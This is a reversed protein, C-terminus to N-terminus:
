RTLSPDSFSIFDGCKLKIADAMGARLELVSWSSLVPLLMRWPQVEPVIKIVQGKFNIFIVDIPFSMCCTHVSMTMGPLLLGTRSDLVTHGILGRMRQLLSSAVEITMGASVGNVFMEKTRM